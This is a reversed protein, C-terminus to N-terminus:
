IKMNPFSVPIEFEIFNNMVNATKGDTGIGANLFSSTVSINAKKGKDEIVSVNVGMKVNQVKFSKGEYGTLIQQKDQSYFGEPNIMCGTDKLQKQAEIVGSTIQVLTETIFDKLIM